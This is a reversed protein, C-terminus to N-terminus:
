NWDIDETDKEGEKWYNSNIIIDNSNDNNDNSNDHKNNKTCAIM